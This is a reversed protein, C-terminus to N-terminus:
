VRLFVRRRELVWAVGWWIMVYGLAWALSAFPAPLNGGFLAPYLHGKLSLPAGDPGPWKIAFFTKAMLSSGVFAVISNKGFTEFPRAWSTWGRLDVAWATGAFLILALGGSLLVYSSTWLNKNIPFVQAWLLGLALLGVGAAAFRGLTRSRPQTSRLAEGAAVGLLATALAPLTSLLGEPDGPGPAYRWIHGGLIQHDLWAALNGQVSLDGAGFGPVPVLTMLGWYGLLLGAGLLWRGRPQLHVAALAALAYVIGIRQLIGPIRARSWDVTYFPYWTLFLGLAVLLAARRLIKRHIEGRTAPDAVRDGLALAIAVGLIFLFFPFVLDTPTWGHWDAHLLPAWTKAEDGANNVLIMGAITAGRFVDLSRLRGNTM